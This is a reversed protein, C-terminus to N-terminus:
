SLSLVAEAIAADIILHSWIRLEPQQLLPRVAEARLNDCYACRRVMLVVYKYSEKVKSRFDDLDFLTVARLDSPEEPMPGTNSYPRYQVNGVWDTNDLQNMGDSDTMFKWFQDHKDNRSGMATVIVDVEDRRAYAEKLGTVSTMKNRYEKVTLVIEGYLAVTQEVRDKPFLNFFSIPHLEPAVAGATIAFLRVKPIGTEQRLLRSFHQSFELTAHGPGLGLGMPRGLRNGTDRLLKLVTEAAKLAIRDGSAQRDGTVDHVVTIEYRDAISYTARLKKVLEDEIPPRLQILDLREALRLLRIPEQPTMPCGFETAIQTAIHSTGQDTRFILELIRYILPRNEAKAAKHPPNQSSPVDDPIPDTM